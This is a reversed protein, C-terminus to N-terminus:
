RIARPAASRALYKKDYEHDTREGECLEGGEGEFVFM